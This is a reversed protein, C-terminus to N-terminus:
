DGMGHLADFLAGFPDDKPINEPPHPFALRLNYVHHDSNIGGPFIKEDSNILYLHSAQRKEPLTM